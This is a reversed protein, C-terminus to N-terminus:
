AQEANALPLSLKRDARDMCLRRGQLVERGLPQLPLLEQSALWKRLQSNKRTTETKVSDEGPSFGKRYNQTPEV